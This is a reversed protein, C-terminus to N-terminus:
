ETERSAHVVLHVNTTISVEKQITLKVKVRKSHAETWVFSADTLRVQMLNNEISLVNNNLTLCAPM